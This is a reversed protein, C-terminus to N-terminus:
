APDDDAPDDTVRRLLAKVREGAQEAEISIRTIADTGLAKAEREQFKVVLEMARVRGTHDEAITLGDELLIPKGNSYAPIPGADVRDLAERRLYDLDAIQRRQRAHREEIPIDDRMRAVVVSVMQQTLGYHDAIQQQTQGDTYRLWIDFDRDATRNRSTPESM